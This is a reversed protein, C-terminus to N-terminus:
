YTDSHVISAAIANSERVVLSGTNDPLGGPGSPDILLLRYEDEHAFNPSKVFAISLWIALADREHQYSFTEEVTWKIDKEGYQVSRGLLILESQTPLKSFHDVLASKLTPLHYTVYAGPRKESDVERQRINEGREHSFEGISSCSCYDNVVTEVVIQQETGAISANTIEVGPLSAEKFYGSRTNFIEQIRSEQHDGLRGSAANEKARYAILTGLQFYGKRASELYREEIHRTIYEPQEKAISTIVDNSLKPACHRKVQLIGTGFGIIIVNNITM